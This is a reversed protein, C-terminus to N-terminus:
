DQFRSVGLEQNALLQAQEFIGNSFAERVDKETFASKNTNPPYEAILRTFHKLFVDRAAAAEHRFKVEDVNMSQKKRKKKILFLTLFIVEVKM